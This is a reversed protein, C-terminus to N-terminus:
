DPEDEAYARAFGAQSAARCALQEEAPWDGYVMM